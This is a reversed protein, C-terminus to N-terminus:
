GALSSTPLRGPRLEAQPSAGPKFHIEIQFGLVYYYAPAEERNWLSIKPPGGQDYTQKHPAELWVCPLSTREGNRREPARQAERPRLWGALCGALWSGPRLEAQPYAGQDYNQKHPVERHLRLEAQPLGQTQLPNRNPVGTSTRPPKREPVMFFDTPFRLPLLDTPPSGGALRM